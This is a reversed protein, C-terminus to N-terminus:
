TSKGSINAFIFMDNQRTHRCLGRSRETWDCYSIVKMEEEKKMNQPPQGVTTVCYGWWSTCAMYEM